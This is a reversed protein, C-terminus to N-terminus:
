LPEVDEFLDYNKARVITAVENQESVNTGTQM